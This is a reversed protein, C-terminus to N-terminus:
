LGCGGGAQLASALRGTGTGVELVNKGQIGVRNDFEKIIRSAVWTHLKESPKWQVRNLYEDYHEM